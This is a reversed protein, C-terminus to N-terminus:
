SHSCNRTTWQFANSFIKMWPSYKVSEFKNSVDSSNATTTEPCRYPWQWALFCREPHPMLGLHRGDSSCIGAVSYESGNPNEPYRMSPQGQENCYRVSVLSKNILNKLVGANRYKFQGEGHSSWVGLVSGQMNQLLISSSEEIKVTNFGSFFRGSENEDLFINAPEENESDGIFGLLAMLQCGNCVGLSFTSPDCRFRYFMESVNPNFKISAAWGKASGLVDAYSFGGVFALGAFPKLIDVNGGSAQLLDEMTLDFAQFGAMMFAAAMERDGNSGEERLIAVRPAETLQQNRAISKDTGFEFATSYKIDTVSNRWQAQQEVCVISMQMAEFRDSTEEWIARLSSLSTDVYSTGNITIRVTAKPGFVPYCKGIEVVKVQNYEADKLLERNGAFACELVTTILGGDSVDHGSLIWGSKIWKQVLNFSKKFYTPDDLDPILDGGLQGFCQSLASGGLRPIETPRSKSAMGLYVITTPFDKAKFDPTIVKTIDVCPAYATVVLTGPSKVVESEVIAAMSLSDKGGDVGIGLKGMIDCMADCATVLREGEGPLKAPWMWNGSCKIDEICTIPAFVLNTLAEGVSMRASGAPDLLGKIPQEGIALAGGVTDWYSLAVVGVDALPTHLPGVCQQQAILGTVSRDVKSTLFRKSAVTPLRLVSELVNMFSVQPSLNLMKAVVTASPDSNLEFQKPEREAILALDLEVPLQGTVNNEFDALKVIGDGTVEGVVSLNCRERKAIKQIMNKKSPELLIADSEQYEAGWLERLTISSDGLEFANSHIIAGGNTGSNPSTCEVIEKLVNGNGGAGQDHISLIPNGEKGMEVCARIVRHLKHEMEPDGRQVAGHDAAKDRGGQIALSSAAGGGVGIRYVPGGIKAVLQGREPQVKHVLCGDISGIGGSFMIPKLFEVRQSRDVEDNESPRVKLEMGFSRTFGAILPEGFKNGYDSAGDSAELLIKLPKALNEPYNWSNSQEIQGGFGPLHGVSYGAVGAIEHAGRGTAHVDRIRGGSGTAAGPFPCVWVSFKLGDRRVQGYCYILYIFKSRTIHRLSDRTILKSLPGEPQSSVLNNTSFGHIASSNDSFSIVNNPNSSIQTKQISKFLSENRKVGNVSIDGKFFWHRSHESNSQALDFLEVDTPNRGVKYRFFDLYYQLDTEDLGLAMESNASRLNEEGYVPDMVNVVQFEVASQSNKRCINFNPPSEPLYESQTMRDGLCEFIVDRCNPSSTFVRFVAMQQPTANPSLRIKYRHSQELRCVDVIGSSRFASVANTSFPTTMRPMPGIEMFLEDTGKTSFESNRCLETDPSFVNHGLLWCLKEWNDSLFEEKKVSPQLQVHFCKESRIELACSVTQARFIIQHLEASKAENRLLQSKRNDSSFLRVVTTSNPPVIM